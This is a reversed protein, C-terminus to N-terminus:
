REDDAVKTSLVKASSVRHVTYYRCLCRNHDCECTARLDIASDKASYFYLGINRETIKPTEQLIKSAGKHCNM